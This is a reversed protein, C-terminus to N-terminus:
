RRERWVPEADPPLVAASTWPPSGPPAVADVPGDPSGLRQLYPEPDPAPRGESPDRPGALLRHATQALSLEGYWGGGEERQRALAALVTAAALYGTTHDLAQAPLAGPEEPTGCTTAIGTAAQVLSDFGRRGAWPGRTGWASLRVVVLHPHRHALAAQDVGFAELAGPRYGQVVVDATRLLGEVTRRDGADALDLVVHRKGVGTDVLGERLDPLRPGDVRLVDAGHSALVRTAVPGAIVRTLDLVRLGPLGPRRPPAEASRRLELLPLATVARGQPSAAWVEPTRVAAAAGGAAVVAEELEEAPWELAAGAVADVDDSGLVAAAAARHHPYNGHLRLWGDATRWFRSLPAFGLGVPRGRLRAYRESRVALGVHAADLRVPAPGGTLVQAAALEAAVAGLVLDGVALPGGLGTTGTVEVPARLPVGTARTVEQLLANM